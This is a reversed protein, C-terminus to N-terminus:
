PSPSSPSSLANVINSLENTFPYDNELSQLFNSRAQNNYGFIFLHRSQNMIEKKLYEENSYM